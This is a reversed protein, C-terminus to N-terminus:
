LSFQYTICAAVLKLTKTCFIRVVLPMQPSDLESLMDNFDILPIYITDALCVSDIMNYYRGVEKKSYLDPLM